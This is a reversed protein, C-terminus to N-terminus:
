FTTVKQAELKIKANEVNKYTFYVLFWEDFQNKTLHHKQILEDYKGDGKLLSLKEELLQLQNTDKSEGTIIFEEPKKGRETLITNLKEQSSIPIMSKYKRKAIESAMNMMGILHKYRKDLDKLPKIKEEMSAVKKLLQEEIAIGRASIQGINETLKVIKQADSENTFDNASVLTELNNKKCVEKIENAISNLNEREQANMKCEFRNYAANRLIWSETFQQNQMLNDQLYKITENLKEKVLKEDLATAVTNPGPTNNSYLIGSTYAIKDKVSLYKTLSNWQSAIGHNTILKNLAHDVQDKLYM